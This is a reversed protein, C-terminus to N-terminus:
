PTPRTKQLEDLADELAEKITMAAPRWGARMLYGSIATRLRPDPVARIFDTETMPWIGEPYPTEHWWRIDPVTSLREIELVARDLDTNAANEILARDAETEERTLGLMDRLRFVPWNENRADESCGVRWPRPTAAALRAKVEALWEALTQTQTM